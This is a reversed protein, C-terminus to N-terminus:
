LWEAFSRLLTGFNCLLLAHLLIESEPTSINESIKDVADVGEKLIQEKLCSPINRFWVLYSRTGDGRVFIDTNVRLSIVDLRSFLTLPVRVSESDRFAAAQCDPEERCWGQCEYLSLNRVTYYATGSFDVDTLKEFAIRGAFVSWSKPWKGSVIARSLSSATGCQLKWDTLAVRSDEEEATISEVVPIAWKCSALGLVHAAHLLQLLLALRASRLATGRMGGGLEA